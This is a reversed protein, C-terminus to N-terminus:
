WGEKWDIKSCPPADTKFTTLKPGAREPSLPEASGARQQEPSEHKENAGRQSFTFKRCMKSNM